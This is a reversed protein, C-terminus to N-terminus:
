KWIRFNFRVQKRQLLARWDLFLFLGIVLLGSGATLLSKWSVAGHVLDSLDGAAHVGILVMAADSVFKGVFFPPLIQLPSIRAIGAATFLATTSLPTLTYVFVFLWSRWRKRGLKRGVFELEESKRAKILRSSFHPIYLSLLYRGLTSGPVGVALVLWPNLHFRMLLFVMVTWAPPGIVPILDVAMAALFVVLYTGM